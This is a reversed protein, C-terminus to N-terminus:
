HENSDVSAGNLEHSMGKLDSRYTPYSAWAISYFLRETYYFTNATEYIWSGLTKDRDYYSSFLFVRLKQYGNSLSISFCIKASQSM